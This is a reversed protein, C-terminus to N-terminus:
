TNGSKNFLLVENVFFFRGFSSTENKRNDYKVEHNGDPSANATKPDPQQTVLSGAGGCCEAHSNTFIM